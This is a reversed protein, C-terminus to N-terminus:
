GGVWATGNDFVLCKVAGGGTLPAGPVVCATTQDTVYAMSGVDQSAAAPLTSVTYGHPVILGSYTIAAWRTAGHYVDFCDAIGSGTSSVTPACRYGYYGATGSAFIQQDYTVGGVVGSANTTGGLSNGGLSLLAYGSSSGHGNAGAILAAFYGQGATINGNIKLLEDAQNSAGVIVGGDPVAINPTGSFTWPQSITEITGVAALTDAAAPLTYACSPCSTLFNLVSIQSGNQWYTQANVSGTGETGGTAGSAVVSQFTQAASFTQALNLEAITGTNDPLTASFTSASTGALLNVGGGGTTDLFLTGANSGNGVSLKNGGSYTLGADGGFVGSSNFQVDTSSGGPTGGVGGSGPAPTITQALVGGALMSSLLLGLLLQKM